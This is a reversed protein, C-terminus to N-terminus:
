RRIQVPMVLYLMDIESLPYIICPDKVGSFKIQVETSEIARLGDLFYNSNLALIELDAGSIQASLTDFCKGVDQTEAALKIQQNDYDFNFTILKQSKEDLITAIKEISKILTKRDITLSTIFQEDSPILHPYNPYQGYLSRGVLTAAIDDTKLKFMLSGNGEILKVSEAKTQSLIRELEKLIKAPITLNTENTQDEDLLELHDPNITIVALRHGDTAAVKLQSADIQFNVGTLVQKSEDQSSAFTTHKIGLTLDGSNVVIEQFDDDNMESNDDMAQSLDPYEMTDMGAIQYEINDCRLTCQFNDDIMMEIESNSDQKSVINILLKAPLCASGHQKILCDNLRMEIGFSLDFGAFILHDEDTEIKINSLVPHTPKTPVARGVTQIANLLTSQQILIHM